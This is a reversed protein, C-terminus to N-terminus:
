DFIIFVGWRFLYQLIIFSNELKSQNTRNITTTRKNRKCQQQIKYRLATKPELSSSPHWSPYLLCLPSNLVTVNLSFTRRSAPERGSTQSTLSFMWLHKVCAFIDLSFNTISINIKKKWFMCFHRQRPKQYCTLQINRQLMLAWVHQVEISDLLDQKSLQRSNEMLHLHFGSQNSDKELSFSVIRLQQVINRKAFPLNPKLVYCFVSPTITHNEHEKTGDENVTVSSLETPFVDKKCSKVCQHM